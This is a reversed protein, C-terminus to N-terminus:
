EIKEPTLTLEVTKEGRQVKIRIPDPKALANRLVDLSDSDIPFGNITLLEDDPQLGAREAPSGEEVYDVGILEDGVRLGAGMRYKPQDSGADTNRAENDPSDQAPFEGFRKEMFRSIRSEVGDYNSMM